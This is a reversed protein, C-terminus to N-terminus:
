TRECVCSDFSVVSPANAADLSKQAIVIEQPVLATVVMAGKACVHAAAVAIM